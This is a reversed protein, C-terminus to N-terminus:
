SGLRARVEMSVAQADAHPLPVYQAGIADAIREASAEGRPSTDILLAAVGHHRLAAAAEIADAEAADRGRKGDRSINPRGDTLLVVAPTQHRRKISQALLSAQELAEALPTGGGGPLDALRRRARTLSRTPPLLLEAGRGRFALLAVHDRRVYCDALLLEVAGKAEALRSLATSGSADVVFMTVTERQEKLRRVRFDDPRVVIRRYGTADHPARTRNRLTQWPAAARLTELVNLRAGSRLHGRRTGAPRGRRVTRREAGTGKAGDGRNRASRRNLLRALLDSPIAAQAAALIVEQLDADSPQHKDQDEESEEAEHEPPEPSDPTEQDDQTPVLIARPALVLRAAIAIDQDSVEGNLAANCCAARVALLPANFSAIGFARAVSCLVEVAEDALSMDPLRARAKTIDDRSFNVVDGICRLEDLCLHLALRDRLAGPACEDDIGEDLAIVSFRTTHQKALGDREITVAGTDLAGSIKAATAAGLREASPILVIGQDSKALIGREVIPRGASLTATLDLGGLLRDDTAHTPLRHFPPNDPMLSRLLELWAERGGTARGRLVAGGLGIPDVAFLAAARAADRLTEDLRNLGKPM